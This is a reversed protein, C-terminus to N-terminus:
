IQAIMFFDFQTRKLKVELVFLGTGRFSNEDPGPISCQQKRGLDIRTSVKESSTFIVKRM